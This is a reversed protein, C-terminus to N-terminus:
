KVGADSTGYTAGVLMDAACWTYRSPGVGVVGANGLADLM